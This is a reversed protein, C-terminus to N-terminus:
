ARQVHGCVQAAAAGARATPAHHAEEAQQVLRQMEEQWGAACLRLVWVRVVCGWSGMVYFSQIGLGEDECVLDEQLGEVRGELAVARKELRDKSALAEGLQGAARELAEEKARLVERLEEVAEAGHPAGLARALAEEAQLLGTHTDDPHEVPM